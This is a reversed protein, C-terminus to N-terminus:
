DSSREVARSLPPPMSRHRSRRSPLLPSGRFGRLGASLRSGGQMMVAVAFTLLQTGTMEAFGSRRLCRTRRHRRRHLTPSAGIDRGLVAILPSQQEGVPMRRIKQRPNGRQLCFLRSCKRSADGFQHRRHVGLAHGRLPHERIPMPAFARTEAVFPLRETALVGHTKTLVGELDVDLPLPLAHNKDRCSLPQCPAWADPQNEAPLRSRARCKPMSGRSALWVSAPVSCKGHESCRM